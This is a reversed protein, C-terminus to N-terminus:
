LAEAPMDLVFKTPEDEFAVISLQKDTGGFYNFGAL